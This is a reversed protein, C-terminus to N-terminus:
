NDTLRIPLSVALLTVLAHKLLAFKIDRLQRQRRVQHRFTAAHRKGSNRNKGPTQETVRLHPDVHFRSDAFGPIEDALFDAQV